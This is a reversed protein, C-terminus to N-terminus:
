LYEKLYPCAIFAIIQHNRKVKNLLCTEDPADKIYTNIQDPTFVKARTAEYGENQRKLFAQLLLFTAINVGKNVKLTSRLISYTSWLTPPAYGKETNLHNFYALLVNESIKLAKNKAMWTIFNEYTKEYKKKSKQPLLGKIVNEAIEDINNDM